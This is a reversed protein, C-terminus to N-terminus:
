AAPPCRSRGTRSEGARCATCRAASVSPQTLVVRVRAPAASTWGVFYGPAWATVSVPTTAAIGGLAFSGDAATVTANDTARVRVTAGAVPGDADVVVGSIADASLISGSWVAWAILGALLLVPVAVPWLRLLRRSDM